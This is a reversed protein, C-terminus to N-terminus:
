ADEGSEPTGAPECRRAQPDLDDIRKALQRAQAWRSWLIVLVGLATIMVLLHRAIIFTQSHWGFVIGVALLGMALGVAGAFTLANGFLRALTNM